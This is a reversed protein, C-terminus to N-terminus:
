GALLFGGEQTAITTALFDHNQGSLYKGWVEEGQQNLKVLHFDYGNNQTSNLTSPQSGLTSSGAGMKQSGTQISSGTVLYQHDITTTVQSLFDQTGSSIDKQWFIEQASVNLFTCMFFVSFYNKKM